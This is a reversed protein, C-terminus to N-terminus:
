VPRMKATVAIVMAKKMTVTTVQSGMEYQHFLALSGYAMKSYIPSSGFAAPKVALPEHRSSRLYPIAAMYAWIANVM